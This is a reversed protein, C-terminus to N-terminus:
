SAEPVTPLHASIADVLRSHAAHDDARFGSVVSREGLRWTVLLLGDRGMVKGALADGLEAHEVVDFPLYLEPLGDREVHVGDSTVTLWGAARDALSHVAIRDLWDSASTTGVFVGSTAGVVVQGAVAPPAPPPPLDAQRRQRGRWGKLMLLYCGAAFAFTALTLLVREASV